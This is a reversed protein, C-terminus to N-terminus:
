LHCEVNITNKWGELVSKDEGGGGYGGDMGVVWDSREHYKNLNYIFLKQLTKKVYM